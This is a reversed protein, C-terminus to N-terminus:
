KILERTMKQLTDLQKVESIITPNVASHPRSRTYYSDFIGEDKLFMKANVPYLQREILSMVTLAAQVKEAKEPEKQWNNCLWVYLDPHFNAMVGSYGAIGVKLTDLLTSTNANFLNTKSGNIINQRDVIMQYDCCTDKIFAFRNSEACFRVEDLTLLHKFPYPCEYLGLPLDKPLANMVKECNKLWKGTKDGENEFRNTIFIVADVGTDAIMKLEEIQDFAACSTHGSAIVPVKAHDKIFKAVEVREKLSLYFMESSQCDAFLGDVGNEEYWNILRELSKYDVEGEDTFPTLMVPWVGRSKYIDM